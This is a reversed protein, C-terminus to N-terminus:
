CCVLAALDLLSYVIVLYAVFHLVLGVDVCVMYICYFVVLKLVCLDVYVVLRFCSGCLGVLYCFGIVLYVLLSALCLM